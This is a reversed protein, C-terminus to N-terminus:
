IVSNRKGPSPLVGSAGGNQAAADDVLKSIDTGKMGGPKNQNTERDKPGSDYRIGPDDKSYAGAGRNVNHKAM